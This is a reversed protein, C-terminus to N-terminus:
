WGGLLKAIVRARNTNGGFIAQMKQVAAKHAEPTGKRVLEKLSNVDFDLEPAESIRTVDAVEAAKGGSTKAPMSLVSQEGEPINVGLKRALQEHWYRTTLLDQPTGITSPFNKYRLATDMVDAALRRQANLDGIPKTTKYDLKMIASALEDLGNLTFQKNKGQYVKAFENMSTLNGEPHVVTQSEQKGGGSSSGTEGASPFVSNPQIRQLAILDNATVGAPRPARQSSILPEVSYQSRGQTKTAEMEDLKAEEPTRAMIDSLKKNFADFDQKAVGLKRDIEGKEYGYKDKAVSQLEAENVSPDYKYNKAVDLGTSKGVAGAAIQGLSGVMRDVMKARSASDLRKLYESYAAAADTTAQKKASEYNGYKDTQSDPTSIVEKPAETKSPEGLLKGEGYLSPVAEKMVDPVGVKDKITKSFSTDSPTTPVPGELISDVTAEAPPEQVGSTKDEYGLQTAIDRAFDPDEKAKRDMGATTKPGYIGRGRGSRILDSDLVSDQIKNAVFAKRDWTPEAASKKDILGKIFAGDFTPTQTTDPTPQSVPAVKDTGSPEGVETPKDALSPVKGAAGAAEVETKWDPRKLLDPVKPEPEPTPIAAKQGGQLRMIQADIVDSYAPYAAKLATLGAIRENKITDRSRRLAEADAEPERYQQSTKEYFDTQLTSSGPIGKETRVHKLGPAFSPAKVEEPSKVADVIDKVKSKPSDGDM